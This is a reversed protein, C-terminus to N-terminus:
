VSESPSELMKVNKVRYGKSPVNEIIDEGKVKLKKGINKRLKSIISRIDNTSKGYESAIDSTCTFDKQSILFSLIKYNLFNPRLRYVLKRGKANIRFLEGNELNFFLEPPKKAEIIGKSEKYKKLARNIKKLRKVKMRAIIKGSRWDLEQVYVEFGLSTLFGSLFQAFASLKEARRRESSFSYLLRWYEKLHEHNEPVNFTEIIKPSQKLDFELELIQNEQLPYESVLREMVQKEIFEQTQTAKKDVEFWHVSPHSILVQPPEEKKKENKMKEKEKKMKM